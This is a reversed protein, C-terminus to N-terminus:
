NEFRQANRARKAAVRSSEYRKVVTMELHSTWISGDCVNGLFPKQNRRFPGRV